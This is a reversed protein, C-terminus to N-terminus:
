CCRVDSLIQDSCRGSVISFIKLSLTRVTRSLLIKKADLDGDKFCKCIAIRGINNFYNYNSNPNLSSNGASIDSSYASATYEFNFDFYKGLKNKTDIAFVLNEQPKLQYKTM